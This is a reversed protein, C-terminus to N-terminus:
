GCHLLRSSRSSAASGFDGKDVILTSYGAAALHQATSAGNIGGGIVIVDFRGDDLETLSSRM